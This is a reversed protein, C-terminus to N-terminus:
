NGLKESDSTVGVIGIGTKGFSNGNYLMFLQNKFSFFSPYEVMDSEWENKTTLLPPIGGLHSASNTDELVMFGIRYKTGEGRFSYAMLHNKGIAVIAPRSFAQATGLVYPIKNGSKIVAGNKTMTAEKLIHLMEGNGTDWQITSGYWIKFSDNHSYIAPYSLSIPDEADLDMWPESNLQMLNGNKGLSIFGVRGEWHKNRYNKWGMISLRREGDFTFLQGISIGDSFYSDKVGHLHQLRVSDYDPELKGDFFDISYISSRNESDRSNFFIRLQSNNL